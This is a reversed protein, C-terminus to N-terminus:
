GAAILNKAKKLIDGDMVMKGAMGVADQLEDLLDGKAAADPASEYAALLRRIHAIDPTMLHTYHVLAPRSLHIKSSRSSTMENAAARGPRERTQDTAANHLAIHVLM